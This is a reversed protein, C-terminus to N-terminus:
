AYTDIRNGMYELQSIEIINEMNMKILEEALQTSQELTSQLMRAAIDSNVSISIHEDM